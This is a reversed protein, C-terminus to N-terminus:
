PWSEWQGSTFNMFWRPNTAGNYWIWAGDSARYMFPYLANGTYLWGMDNAFLWTDGPTSTEAVFFFGHKHHWIWGALEMVAYDGFWGLRRWGGGLDTYGADWGSVEAGAQVVTCTRALEGRTVVITGTRMGTGANEEVDFAATGNTMGTQGSTVTIWASDPANTASWAGNATVEIPNGSTAGASVNTWEPQIALAPAPSGAQVVTVTLPSGQAGSAVVVVTGTRPSFGENAWHAVTVTGGNTGAGGDLPELWDYATQTWYEMTGSGMNTVELTFEGAGAGIAQNTPAVVLAPGPGAQVVTVTLPSGKAGAATVTITGTRASSGPNAGFGFWVSGSNGGSAGSWIELWGDNSEAQYAITGAGANAVDFYDDGEGAGVNFNTQSVTLQAPPLNTTAAVSHLQGGAISVVDGLWAPVNTQGTQNYGWAVVRGDTKLALSHGGGSAVAVVGTLGAPAVAQTYANYGWGVVTGDAQVGLYHPARGSSIWRLSGVGEPVDSQGFSSSGWAVLTGDATQALSHGDGAAIKVVNSLGPPSTAQGYGNHGWGVVLGNTTLGVCHILGCAVATLGPLGAPVNTQGHTNQGWAVATGDTKLAVNHYQGCAVAMVNSLGAPVNTQGYSNNGWAAVTGDARLALSHYEGAAVATVGTLGAPVNLQGAANNGWAVVVGAGEALASGPWALMAAAVGLRIWAAEKNM